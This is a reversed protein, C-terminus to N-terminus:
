YSRRSSYPWSLSLAARFQYGTQGRTSLSPVDYLCVRGNLSGCAVMAGENLGAMCYIREENADSTSLCQGSALSWSKVLKDYGGSIIHDGQAVVCRVADMHGELVRLCSGSEVDWVRLTTDRSCSVVTDANAMALGRITSTHGPLTHLWESNSRNILLFCHEPPRRSPCIQVWNRYGM